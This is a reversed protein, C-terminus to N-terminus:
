PESQTLVDDFVVSNHVEKPKVFIKVFIRLTVRFVQGQELVKDFITVLVVNIHKNINDIFMKLTVEKLSEKLELLHHIVGTILTEKDTPAAVKVKVVFGKHFIPNLVQFHYSIFLFM